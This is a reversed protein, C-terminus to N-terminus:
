RGPPFDTVARAVDTLRRALSPAPQAGDPKSLYAATPQERGRLRLVRGPAWHRQEDPHAAAVTVESALIRGDVRKAQETLRAAENVADGIVTYELRTPTGIQGAIVAGAAVGIGIDLEDIACVRDRIRRATRLAATCADDIAVPAGFVCLAADGEFKNLLGGHEQVEEVVIEFFRNLLNVFDVPEMEHTLRTSGTIDVFLAVVDRSEGQLTVGRTIADAAVASGVHRGFLDQIRERDRLGGVMDNFGIQVLGIEGADEVAVSVDLDGGEVQKLARVMARLPAGITRATLLTAIAGLLIAVVAVFVSAIRIHRLDQPEVVILVIGVVPAASTLLWITFLQWRVGFVPASTPPQSALALRIVPASVRGVLLYTIGASALGAIAAGGGIGLVSHQPLGVSASVAIAALGGVFWLVVVILAMDLKMRLARAADAASPREGRLLWRLTRRQVLAGAANGAIVQVVMIVIASTLIVMRQHSTTTTNTAITTLVVVLVGVVNAATVLVAMGLFTRVVFPLNAAVLSLDVPERADRASPAAGPLESVRRNHRVCM